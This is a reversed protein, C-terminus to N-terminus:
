GLLMIGLRAVVVLLLVAAILRWLGILALTDDGGGRVAEAPASRILGTGEM